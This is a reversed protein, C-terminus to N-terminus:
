SEDPFCATLIREREGPSLKTGHWMALKDQFCRQSSRVLEAMEKDPFEPYETTLSIFQGFRLLRKLTAKHQAMLDPTSNDLLHEDEWRTIQEVCRSWDEVAVAFERLLREELHGVYDPVLPLSVADTSV